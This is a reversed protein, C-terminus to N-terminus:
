KQAETRLYDVIQPMLSKLTPYKNRMPLYIDRILPVMERLYIWKDNIFENYLEDARQKGLLKENLVIENARVLHEYLCVKWSSYGQRKLSTAIPKLLCSYQQLLPWQQDILPNCFNHSFEHLILESLLIESDFHPFRAVSDTAPGTVAYFTHGSPTAVDVAYGGDNMLPSLVVRYASFQQGYHQEMMKIVGSNQLRNRIGSSLSDYFKKHSLFFKRFDTQVYFDRFAHMLIALTDNHENFGYSDADTPSFAALQRFSPLEHHLMFTVPADFGFMRRYIKRHLEIAFHNRYPHFYTEVDRKYGLSDNQNLIPYDSLYQIVTLFEIREDASIRFKDAHATTTLFLLLVILPKM